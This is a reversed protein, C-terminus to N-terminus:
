AASGSFVMCCQTQLSPKAREKLRYRSWIPQGVGAAITGGIAALGSAFTRPKFFTVGSPAVAATAISTTGDLTSDVGISIEATASNKGQPIIGIVTPGNANTATINGTASTLASGSSLRLELRHISSWITTSSVPTTGNLPVEEQVAAGTDDYGSIRVKKSSNDAANSSVLQLEGNALLDDLSNRMWFVCNYISQSSTNANYGFLKAYQLLDGGGSPQSDMSFHVAGLTGGSIVTSTKAGGVNATAFSTPM